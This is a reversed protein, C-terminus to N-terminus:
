LYTMRQEFTSSWIRSVIPNLRLAERVYGMIQASSDPRQSSFLNVIEGRAQKNADDLFYDVAHVIAKSFLAATPVAADFIDNAVATHAADGSEDKLSRLFKNDDNKQLAKMQEFIRGKM